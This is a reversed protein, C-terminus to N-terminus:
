SNPTLWVRTRPQLTLDITNGTVTVPTATLKDTYTAGKFTEATLKIAAPTANFNHVVFDREGLLQLAVRSPANLQINLKGMFADRLVNAAEEPLSAIGLPRPPLLVEGVADYDAQSFSHSNLVYVPAGGSTNETLFPVAKEGVKAELLVEATGLILDGDLDLGNPVPSANGNVVVNEAKMPNPEVPKSLGAVSLIFADKQIMSVLSATMVIPIGAAHAKRISIGIKPDAAAQAPLFLCPTSAPIRSVPVLPVGLTGIFDMIFLDGGADSNVPKYGAVGHAPHERVARALSVLNDFNELIKAHGEHVPPFAEYSFYMINRAGALVSQFAQEIFDNADCDGHDFWAGITKEPAVSSIWRYNVFGEYQPVFGFRQTDAGRTETGVWVNDFLQPERALEYGFEHFRDYWQPFKIILRCKPNAQKAPRILMFSSMSTMLDRRYQSWSKNGKAKVSEDTTDSTCFFDDVIIESFVPSLKRMIPAFDRKTKENQYNLWGLKGNDVVGTDPGALTAIGGAVDFGQQLFYDRVLILQDPAIPTSRYGELFIKTIGYKKLLAVAETRAAEDAAFKRVSDDTAYVCFQIDTKCAQAKEFLDGARASTAALVLGLFLYQFPFKMRMYEKRMPAEHIGFQPIAPLINQKLRDAWPRM